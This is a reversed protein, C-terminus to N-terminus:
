QTLQLKVKIPAPVEPLRKKIFDDFIQRNLINFSGIPKGHSISFSGVFHIQVGDALSTSGSFDGRNRDNFFNLYQIDVEIEGVKECLVQLKTPFNIEEKNIIKQVFLDPSFDIFDFKYAEKPLAGLYYTESM